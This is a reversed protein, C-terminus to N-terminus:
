LHLRHLWTRGRVQMTGLEARLHKTRDVWVADAKSSADQLQKLQM